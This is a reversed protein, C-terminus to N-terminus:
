SYAGSKTKEPVRNGWLKQGAVMNFRNMLDFDKWLFHLSGKKFLKTEFFESQMKKGYYSNNDYVDALSAISDLRKGTLFCLSKEIDSVKQKSSYDLGESWTAGMNNLIFRKGVKYSSNTKYGEVHVRNGDHWKTMTEFAEVICNEMIEERSAFLQEFLAEMNSATFAMMGQQAQAQELDKRVNETTVHGLKTKSFLHDWSQKTVDKLFDQYCVDPGQSGKLAEAVLNKGSKYETLLPNLFFDVKQRALLLEKFAEVGANYRAEYASFVNPSVLANDEIEDVKYRGDMRKPEFDIRFGEQKRTDHLHVLTVRVSTRREADSFAAGLEKSWGYRAVISKLRKREETYPNLLTESNILCRIIAGHAVDWAKLLHSAGDDFPPNMLIIDFYQLGSYTLFDSDIVKYGKDRLIAQLDPQLEIAYLGSKDNRNNYRNYRSYDADRRKAVADLLDGKGASPDLVTMNHKLGSLMLHSVSDPTPYFNKNDFM